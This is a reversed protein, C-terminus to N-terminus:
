REQKVASIIMDNYGKVIVEDIEFGDLELQKRIAKSLERRTAATEPALLYNFLGIGILPDAKFDGPASLLLDEIHQESSPGIALDGDKFLLDNDDDDIFDIAESM